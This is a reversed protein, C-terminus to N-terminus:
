LRQKTATLAPKNGSGMATGEATCAEFSQAMYDDTNCKKKKKYLNAHTLFDACLESCIPTLQKLRTPIVISGYGKATSRYRGQQEESEAMHPLTTYPSYM